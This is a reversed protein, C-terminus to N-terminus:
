EQTLYKFNSARGFLNWSRVGLNTTQRLHNDFLSATPFKDHQCKRARIFPHKQPSASMSITPNPLWLPSAAASPSTLRFLNPPLAAVQRTSKREPDNADIGVSQSSAPKTGSLSRFLSMVLRQFRGM